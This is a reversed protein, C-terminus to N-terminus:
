GEGWVVVVFRKEVRKRIIVYYVIIYNHAPGLTDLCGQSHKVVDAYKYVTCLLVIPASQVNAQRISRGFRHGEVGWCCNRRRRFLITIFAVLSVTDQLIVHSTVNWNDVIWFVLLYTHHRRTRYSFFCWREFVCYHGTFPLKGNFDSRRGDPSQRRSGALLIARPCARRHRSASVSRNQGVSRQCWCCDGLQFGYVRLVPIISANNNGDERARVRFTFYFCLSRATSM